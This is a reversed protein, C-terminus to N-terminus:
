NFFTIHSVEALKEPLLLVWKLFLWTYSLQSLARALFWSQSLPMGRCHLPTFTKRKVILFAKCKSEDHRRDEIHYFCLCKSNVVSKVISLHCKKRFSPLIVLHTRRNCGKQMYQNILGWQRVLNYICNLIINLWFNSQHM